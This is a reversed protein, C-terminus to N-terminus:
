DCIPPAGALQEREIVRTRMSGNREVAFTGHSADAFALSATGV